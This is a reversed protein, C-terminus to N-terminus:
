LQTQRTPGDFLIDGFQGYQTLFFHPNQNVTGLKSFSLLIAVNGIYRQRYEEVNTHALYAGQRTILLYKGKPHYKM